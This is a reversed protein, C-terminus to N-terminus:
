KCVDVETRALCLADHPLLSCLCLPVITGKSITLTHILLRRLYILFTRPVQSFLISPFQPVKEEPELQNAKRDGLIVETNLHCFFIEGFDVSSFPAWKAELLIIEWIFQFFKESYSLEPSWFNPNALSSFIKLLKKDINCKLSLPSSYFSQRNHPLGIMCKIKRIAPVTIGMKLLPFAPESM